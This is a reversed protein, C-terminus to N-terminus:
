IIASNVLRKDESVATERFVGSFGRRIYVM